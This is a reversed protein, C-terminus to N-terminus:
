DAYYESGLIYAQLVSFVLGTLETDDIRFGLWKWKGREQKCAEAFMEEVINKVNNLKFWEAEPLLKAKFLNTVYKMNNPIFKETNTISGLHVGTKPNLECREICLPKVTMHWAILLAALSDGSARSPTPRHTWIGEAVRTDWDTRPRKAEPGSSGDARIGRNTQNQNTQFHTSVASTAWKWEPDDYFAFERSLYRSRLESLWSVVGDNALYENVLFPWIELGHPEYIAYMKRIEILVMAPEFDDGAVALEAAVLEAAVGEAAVVEDSSAARSGLCEQPSGRTLGKAVVALNPTPPNGPCVSGAATGASAASAGENPIIEKKAVDAATNPTPSNGPRVWGAATVAFAASSTTAGENPIMEKKVVVAAKNSTPPIGPCVIRVATVVSATSASTAVENPILAKLRSNLAVFGLFVWDRDAGALTVDDVQLWWETRAMRYIQDSVANWDDFLGMLSTVAAVMRSFAENLKQRTPTGVTIHEYDLFVVRKSKECYALNHPGADMITFGYAKMDLFLQVTANFYELLECLVSSSPSRAVLDKFVELLSQEMKEVIVSYQQGDHMVEGSWFFHVAFKSFGKRSLDLEKTNSGVGDVPHMKIALKGFHLCEGEYVDRNHGHCLYSCDIHWTEAVGNTLQLTLTKTLPYLSRKM